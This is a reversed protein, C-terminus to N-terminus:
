ELDKFCFITAPLSEDWVQRQRRSPLLSFRRVPLLLGHAYSAQVHEQFSFISDQDQDYKVLLVDGVELADVSLYDSGQRYRSWCVNSDKEHGLRLRADSAFARYDYIYRQSVLEGEREVSVTGTAFNKHLFFTDMTLVGGRLSFMRRQTGAVDCSTVDLVIEPM